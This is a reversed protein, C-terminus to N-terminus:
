EHKRKREEFKLLADVLYLPIDEWDTDAYNSIGWQYSEHGIRRLSLNECFNGIKGVRFEKVETKM